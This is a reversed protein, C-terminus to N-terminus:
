DLRGAMAKMIEHLGAFGADFIHDFSQVILPMAAVLLLFAMFINLPFSLMLLNMQPAAKALLGMTIQMLLLVGMVPLAIILAQGFLGTMSKLLMQIVTDKHLIMQSVTVARFSNYIGGLFLKQFGGATLFVLMATLNLFQGMLPIQIQALPDFVQSSAFGMQTSFFQGALQFVSIIIVLFFGMIIGILAEGLLMFIYQLVTEPVLHYGGRVVWPLVAASTFFALGIKGIQPIASSSLMPAIEIFVLVRALILLFIQAEAVIYDLTM